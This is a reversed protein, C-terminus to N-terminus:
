AVNESKWSRLGHRSRPTPPGSPHEVMVVVMPDDCTPCPPNFYRPDNM